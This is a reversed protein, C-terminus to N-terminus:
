KVLSISVKFDPAMSLVLRVLKSVAGFGVVKQEGVPTGVVYAKKVQPKRVKGADAVILDGGKVLFYPPLSCAEYFDLRAVYAQM